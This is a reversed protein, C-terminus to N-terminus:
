IRNVLIVDEGLHLLLFKRKASDLSNATIFDTRARNQGDYYDITFVM